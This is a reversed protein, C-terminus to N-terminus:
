KTGGKTEDRLADEVASIEKMISGRIHSIRTLERELDSYLSEIADWKSKRWEGKRIFKGNKLKVWANKVYEEDVESSKVEVVLGVIDSGEVKCVYDAFYAMESSM